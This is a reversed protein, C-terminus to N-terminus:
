REGALVKLSLTVHCLVQVEQTIRDSMRLYCYGRSFNYISKLYKLSPM